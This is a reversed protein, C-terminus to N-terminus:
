RECIGRIECAACKHPLPTAPCKDLIGLRCLAFDYKIPDDPDLKRLNETIELAMSWGPSKRKTLGILRSIRAIHTDLPIILQSPRAFDWLGFDLGDDRRVMWRLYLNLRKCASGGTPSPFFYRVGAQKPLAGGPYVPACDLALAREVFSALAGGVDAAAPDYGVRFFGGISGEQKLMQRMYHLLVAIDEGRNFRHAFDAFDSLGKKADFRRVYGAPHEGMRDLIRRLSRQIMAVRGYALSACLLGVVEIDAPDSYEHPFMLPDSELYARDYSRYLKNLKNKLLRKNM